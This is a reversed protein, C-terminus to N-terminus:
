QSLVERVKRALGEATFPKQIYNVGGKLVGYHVIADSTYGSMYLVRFGQRVRQLRDVLQPGSMQPMVVDVLILQIPEKWQECILLAEGGNSAELADYGMRGLIKVTLRRVEEEDEVVLITESGSPLEEEVATGKVIELAEEVQPLYIKFTTGKGLESHVSIDGGCQKVIGYVTSLGLGTGKGREKTTFFPEFIREKVKPAM